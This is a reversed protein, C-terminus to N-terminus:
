KVESTGTPEPTPNFHKELLIQMYDSRSRHAKQSAEDLTKIIDKTLAVSIRDKRVNFFPISPKLNTYARTREM